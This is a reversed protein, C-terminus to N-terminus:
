APGYQPFLCFHRCVDPSFATVFWRTWALEANSTEASPVLHAEILIRDDDGYEFNPQVTVEVNQLGPITQLTHEIMMALERQMALKQVHAAAEPTITVPIATQTSM